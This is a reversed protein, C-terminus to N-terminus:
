KKSRYRFIFITKKALINGASDVQFGLGLKNLWNKVYEIMGQEHGSPSDIQVMEIFKSVAKYM